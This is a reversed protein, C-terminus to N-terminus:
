QSPSPGENLRAGVLDAREFLLGQGEAKNGIFKYGTVKGQGDKIPEKREAFLEIRDGVGADKPPDINGKEQSSRYKIGVIREVGDEGKKREWDLFVVSHGKNVSGQRNLQVFDGPQLKPLGHTPSNPDTDTEVRKGIGFDELPGWPMREPKESGYWARQFAKIQDVTTPPSKLLGRQEIAAMAVAFTFGSCYTGTPPTDLRWDYNARFTKQGFKIDAPIGLGPREKSVQEPKKPNKIEQPNLYGGGNKFSRAITVTLPETPAAPKAAAAPAPLTSAKKRTLYRVLELTWIPTTGM